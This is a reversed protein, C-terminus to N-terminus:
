SLLDVEDPRVVENRPEQPEEAASPQPDAEERPLPQTLPLFFEMESAEMPPPALPVAVNTRRRELPHVPIGELILPEQRDAQLTRRKAM